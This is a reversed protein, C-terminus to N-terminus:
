KRDTDCGSLRRPPSPKSNCARDCPRSRFVHLSRPFDALERRFRCTPCSGPGTQKLFANSCRGSLIRVASSAIPYLDHQAYLTVPPIPNVACSFATSPKAWRIRGVYAPAFAPCGYTDTLGSCTRPFSRHYGVDRSFRALHPAGPPQQPSLACFGELNPLQPRESRMSWLGGSQRRYSMSSWSACLQQPWFM